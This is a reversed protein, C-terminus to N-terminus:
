WLREWQVPRAEFSIVITNVHVPAAAARNMSGGVWSPEGHLWGVLRDQDTQKGAEYSNM